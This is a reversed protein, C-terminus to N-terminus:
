NNNVIKPCHQALRGASRSARWQRGPSNGPFERPVPSNGRHLPSRPFWVTGTIWILSGSGGSRERPVTQWGTWMLQSVERTLSTICKHGCVGYLVPLLLVVCCYYLRLLLILRWFCCCQRVVCCSGVSLMWEHVSYSWTHNIPKRLLPLKSLLLVLVHRTCTSFCLRWTM